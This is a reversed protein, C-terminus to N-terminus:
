RKAYVNEFSDPNNQYIEIDIKDPIILIYDGFRDKIAYKTIIEETEKPYQKYINFLKCIDDTKLYRWNNRKDRVQIQSLKNIVKMDEKSFESINEVKDKLGINIMIKCIEHLNFRNCDTYEKKKLSALSAFTKPAAKYLKQADLESNIINDESYRSEFQSKTPVQLLYKTEEPYFRFATMLDAIKYENVYRNRNPTRTNAIDSFLEPEETYKCITYYNPLYNFVFSGDNRRLNMINDIDEPKIEGILKGNVIRNTNDIRHIYNYNRNDPEKTIFENLMKALTINRVESGSFRYNGLEDKAMAYKEAEEPYKEFVEAAVYDEDDKFRLNGYDNRLNLMKALGNPFDRHSDGIIKATKFSFIRLGNDDETDVIQKVLDPRQYRIDCEYQTLYDNDRYKNGDKDEMNYFALTNKADKDYASLWYEKDCRTAEESDLMKEFEERTPIKEEGMNKAAQLGGIVASSIATAAAAGIIGAAKEKMKFAPSPTFRKTFQPNKLEQPETQGENDKIKQNFRLYNV